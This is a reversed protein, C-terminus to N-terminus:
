NSPMHASHSKHSKAMKLMHLTVQIIAYAAYTQVYRGHVKAWVDASFSLTYFPYVSTFFMTHMIPHWLLTISLLSIILMASYWLLTIPYWLLTIPYWLLTIPHLLLTTPYWLITILYWSPMITLPYWDNNIMTLMISYLLLTGPYLLSMLICTYMYTHYFFLTLLTVSYWLLM